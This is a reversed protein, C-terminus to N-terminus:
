APLRKKKNCNELSHSTNKINTKHIIKPHHNNVKRNKQGNDRM